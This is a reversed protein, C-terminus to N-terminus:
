FYLSKPVIDLLIYKLDKQLFLFIIIILGQGDVSILIVHSYQNSSEMGYM